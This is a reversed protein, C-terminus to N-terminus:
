ATRDVFREVGEPQHVHLVIAVEAEERTLKAQHLLEKVEALTRAARQDEANRDRSPRGV